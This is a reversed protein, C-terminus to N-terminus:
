LPTAGARIMPGMELNPSVAKFRNAKVSNLELARVCFRGIKTYVERADNQAPQQRNIVNGM